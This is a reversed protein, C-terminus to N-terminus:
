NIIGTMWATGNTGDVAYIYEPKTSNGVNLIIEWIYQSPESGEIPFAYIKTLLVAYVAPDFARSFNFSHVSLKYESERAINKV